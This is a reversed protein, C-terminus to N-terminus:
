FHGYNILAGSETLYKLLYDWPKALDMTNSLHASTPSKNAESNPNSNPLAKGLEIMILLIGPILLVM